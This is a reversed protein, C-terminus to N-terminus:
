KAKEELILWKGGSKVMSLTKRSLKAKRMKGFKLSQQFKV